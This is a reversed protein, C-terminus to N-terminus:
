TAQELVEPSLLKAQASFIRALKPEAAAQKEYETKAYDWVM